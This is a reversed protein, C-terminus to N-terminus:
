GNFEDPLHPLLGFHRAIVSVIRESARGDGFPNKAGAMINYRDSDNLLSAANDYIVNEDTGALYVAQERVAEPRETTDRMLVMPKHFVSTEEQLGGSDSLILYSRSILNIMDPYDIPELLHIREYGSLMSYATERVTPSLHVPYVVTVDPHDDVIRRIARFMRKMPEGYNERRHATVTILRGPQGVIRNLRENHFTYDAKNTWLAADVATQGTVFMQGPAYGEQLLNQKGVSTPVFLLDAVVDVIKRNIEEPWPSYKNHSRLGAEVHGVPIQHFFAVLGGVMATQTDGHVLILDPKQESVVRDLGSIAASTFGALTQNPQMLNLDTDPTISFHSLVQDLQERHQGTVVVKTEFGCKKLQQVVPCM